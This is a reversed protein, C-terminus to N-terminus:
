IYKYNVLGFGSLGRNAPPILGADVPSADAWPLNCSHTLTMYRAGMEYLLRLIAFSSQISHGGEVGILSATKNNAIAFEIDSFSM